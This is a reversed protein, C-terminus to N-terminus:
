RPVCGTSSKRWPVLAASAPPVVMILSHPHRSAPLVYAAVACGTVVYENFHQFVRLRQGGEGGKLQGHSGAAQPCDAPPTQTSAPPQLYSPM